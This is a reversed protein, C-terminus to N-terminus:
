CLFRSKEQKDFERWTQYLAYSLPKNVSENAQAREYQKKLMDIAKQLKQESRTM